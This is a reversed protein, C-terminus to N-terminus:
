EKNKISTLLKIIESFGLFMSGSIFGVVLAGPAIYLLDEEDFGLILLILAGLGFLIYTVYAIGALLSAVRNHSKALESEDTVPDEKIVKLMEAYDEDSIEIPRKKFYVYKRQEQDFETHPYENSVYTNPSYEKEYLGADLLVKEKKAQMFATQKQSMTDAQAQQEKLKKEIFEQVRPDM